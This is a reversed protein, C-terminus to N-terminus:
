KVSIVLVGTTEVAHGTCGVFGCPDNKQRSNQTTAGQALALEAERLKSLIQEVSYRKRPMSVGGENLFDM